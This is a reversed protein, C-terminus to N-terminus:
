NTIQRCDIKIGPSMTSSMSITKIYTGKISNPRLKIVTNLLEQTNEAIQDETFSVKAIATHIIGFKDVKFDIKGSKVDQVAKGVDFTVTGTKPNPMLGRPGLVKGLPGIKGMCDPTTIMVDFDVWGGKIKEILEEYGVLDAGASKAEEEKNAQCVVLIKIEKGTGHPLSVVGRVMENSQKPDVGLRISLDVTTDFNVASIKKVINAAEHITFFDDSNYVSLAQKRKKTLNTM